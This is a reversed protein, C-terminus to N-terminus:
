AAMIMLCQALNLPCVIHMSISQTTIAAVFQVGFGIRHQGQTLLLMTLETDTAMLDFM